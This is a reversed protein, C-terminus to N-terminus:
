RKRPIEGLSSSPRELQEICGQIRATAVVGGSHRCTEALREHIWAAKMESCCIRSGPSQLTELSGTRESENRGPYESVMSLIAKDDSKLLETEKGRASRAVPNQSKGQHTQSGSFTSLKTQVYQEAGVTSQTGPQVTNLGL